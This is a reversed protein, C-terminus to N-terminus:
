TNFIGFKALKIICYFNSNSNIETAECITIKSMTSQCHSYNTCLQLSITM